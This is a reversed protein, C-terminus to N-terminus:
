KESVIEWKLNKVKPTVNPVFHKGIFPLNRFIGEHICFLKKCKLMYLTIIKYVQYKFLLHVPYLVNIGAKMSNWFVINTCKCTRQKETTKSFDSSLLLKTKM